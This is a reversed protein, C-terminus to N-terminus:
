PSQPGFGHWEKARYESVSTLYTAPSESSPEQPVLFSLRKGDPRTIIKFFAYPVALGTKLRPPDERYIPGTLVEIKGYRQVYTEGELKLLSGWAMSEGNGIGPVAASLKYTASQGAAGHFAGMLVPSVLQRWVLPTGLLANPAPSDVRPDDFFNSPIVPPKGIIEQANLLYHCWLPVGRKNSFCTEFGPNSILVEPMGSNKTSHTPALAGFFAYVAGGGLCLIVIAFLIAVSRSKSASM